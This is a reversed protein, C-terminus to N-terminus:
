GTFRRSLQAQTGFFRQVQDGVEVEGETEGLQVLVGTGHFTPNGLAVTAGKSIPNQDAAPGTGGQGFEIQGSHFLSERGQEGPQEFRFRGFVVPVVEAAFEEDCADEEFPAERRGFERRPVAGEEARVGEFEEEQQLSGAFHM